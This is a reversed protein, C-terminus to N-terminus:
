DELFKKTEDIIRAPRYGRFGIPQTFESGPGSFCFRMIVPNILRHARHEAATEDLGQRRFVEIVEEVISSQQAPPKQEQAIGACLILLKAGAVAKVSSVETIPQMDMLFQALADETQTILEIDLEPRDMDM